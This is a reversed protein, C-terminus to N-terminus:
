DAVSEEADWGADQMYYVATLVRPSCRPGHGRECDNDVHRAFFDGECFRSLM